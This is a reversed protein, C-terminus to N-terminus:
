DQDAPGAPAHAAHGPLAHRGPEGAGGCPRPLKRRRRSHPPVHRPRRGPTLREKVPKKAFYLGIRLQDKEVKGTRHYHVQIVVDSDKPLYYGVGDPLPRIVNGPAWGALGGSPPFFGVGMNVSYGPGHDPKM